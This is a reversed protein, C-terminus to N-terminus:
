FVLVYFYPFSGFFVGLVLVLLVVFLLLASVWALARWLCSARKFELVDLKRVVLNSEVRVKQNPAIESLRENEKYASLDEPILRCVFLYCLKISGLLIYFFSAIIIILQVLFEGKSNRNKSSSTSNRLKRRFYVKCYSSMSSIDFHEPTLEKLCYRCSNTLCNLCKIFNKGTQSYLAPEKCKSCILHKEKNQSEVASIAQNIQLLHKTEIVSKAQYPRQFNERQTNYAEFHKSGIISKIVEIPYNGKCTYVPCLFYFDESKHQIPETLQSDENVELQSPRRESFDISGDEVKLEFYVKACKHCISHLCAKSIYVGEKLFYQECITCIRYPFNHVKSSDKLERKTQPDLIVKITSNNNIIFINQTPRISLEEKETDVNSDRNLHRSNSRSNRLKRQLTINEHGGQIRGIKMSQHEQNLYDSSKATKAELDNIIVNCTKSDESDVPKSSGQRRDIQNLDSGFRGTIPLNKNEETEKIELSRMLRQPDRLEKSDFVKFGMQKGNEEFVLENISNHQHEIDEHISNSPFNKIMRIRKLTSKPTISKSM